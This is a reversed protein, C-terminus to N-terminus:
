RRDLLVAQEFPLVAFLPRMWGTVAPAAETKTVVRPDVVDFSKGYRRMTAGGAATINKLWDRDPGYTLLIAVGDATPFVTLPTRYRRGSRRGVHELIGMTPAWGAWVRQIPNTVYRNFRALWQPLQM